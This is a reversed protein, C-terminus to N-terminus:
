SNYRPPIIRDAPIISGCDNYSCPTQITFSGDFWKHSSSLLAVVQRAIDKIEFDIRSISIKLMQYYSVNDYGILAINEPIKWGRHKLFQYAAIAVYYGPAFIAMPYEGRCQEFYRSLAEQKVKDSKDADLPERYTIFDVKVEPDADALGSVVGSVRRRFCQEEMTGFIAVHRYGMKLFELAALEGGGVDDPCISVMGPRASVLSVLKLKEYSLIRKEAEPSLPGMLILTNCNRVELDAAAADLDFDVTFVSFGANNLLNKCNYHLQAYFDYIGLENRKTWSLNIAVNRVRESSKARGYNNFDYGLCDVLQMIRQRNEDKVTPLGRLVRSVTMPSVGVLKAMTRISNKQPKGAM